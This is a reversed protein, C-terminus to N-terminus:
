IIIHKPKDKKSDRVIRADHQMAKMANDLDIKLNGKLTQMTDDIFKDDLTDPGLNDSLVGYKELLFMYLKRADGSLSDFKFAPKKSM